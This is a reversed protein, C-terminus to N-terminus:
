HVQEDLLRKKRKLFSSGTGSGSGEEVQRQGIMSSRETM